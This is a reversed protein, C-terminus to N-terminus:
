LINLCESKLYENLVVKRKIKVKNQSAYRNYMESWIRFSINILSKFDKISKGSWCKQKKLYKILIFEKFFDGITLSAYVQYGECLM